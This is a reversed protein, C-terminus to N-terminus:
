APDNGPRQSKALRQYLEANEGFTANVAERFEADTATLIVNRFTLSIRRGRPVGHDSKRAQIRHQWHYRSEGTMVVASGLELLTSRVEKTALSVFDMEYVWGLSITVIGDKFCPECDVHASIGQGPQYENVILQDPVEATLGSEFLKRAIALAFPPLEGLRMSHDVRRATYDYRYGYHQVRRKLDGRWPTADIHALAERQEDANLFNRFLILGPIGLHDDVRESTM